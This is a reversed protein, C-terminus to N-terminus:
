ACAIADESLAFFTSKGTTIPGLLATSQPMIQECFFQTTIIKAELFEAEASETGAVLKRRAILSSKALLYGCFTTGFLQLYPTAGAAADNPDKLGNEFIWLTAKEFAEVADALNRRISPFIQTANDEASRSIADAVDTDNSGPEPIDLDGMGADALEVDLEKMRAILDLVPKGMGIPLKRGILDLAQVGNTGEYISQIRMDRYYQAMGTEEIFGMGGFVQIGLSTVVQGVDSCWAKSLPTLLAAFQEQESREADDPDHEALDLAAANTYLLARMAQIYASMTMLMRRVDAHRIIPVSERSEGSLAKGQIREKAYAVARQFSRESIGLSSVGVAVRANNMMTFMYRMGQNEEGILYGVSGESNDGFNISCTPSAKIGLKHEVGVCVVDNREGLTGDDNVLFKPVVFCSIGRTGAPADPTRALVLHVINETLDHDGFTIFVKAGNILYSGDDRREARTRILGLDTGAQPETLDMTGGWEGTILKEMYKTKLEDSGHALLTDVAGANLGLLMALSANASIFMETFASGVTLPMGGGGHGVPGCLGPWGGEVLQNWPEKFEAPTTVEGDEWVTGQQDGLLNTPAVVESMFRAVEDLMGDVVTPDAHEFDDLKSLRPLDALNDLVFRIDRLPAQYDSM